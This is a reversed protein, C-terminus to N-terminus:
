ADEFALLMRERLEVADAITKLGPAAPEWADHGFYSHGSGPAVILVDFLLPGNRQLRVVRTERDISVVDDMMVRVDPRGRFITRFPWAIDGPSLAATAAQYLLPQFLHHNTRDILVVDADRLSQAAALGGFGGGIIVVRKRAM